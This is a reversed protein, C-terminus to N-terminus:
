LSNRCPRTSAFNPRSLLISQWDCANLPKPITLLKKSPIVPRVPNFCLFCGTFRFRRSKRRIQSNKGVL